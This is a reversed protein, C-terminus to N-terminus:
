FPHCLCYYANPQQDCWNQNAAWPRCTGPYGASTASPGSVLVAVLIAGTTGPGYRYYQYAYSPHPSIPLTSIFGESILPQLNVAINHNLENVNPPYQGYKDYYFELATSLSRLDGRIKADSAKLRASNLSALVVSSLLGIIAIVVLLEILTFARTPKM